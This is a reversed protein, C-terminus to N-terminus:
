WIQLALCVDPNTRATSCRNQESMRRAKKIGTYLILATAKGM